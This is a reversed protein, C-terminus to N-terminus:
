DICLPAGDTPEDPSLVAPEDSLPGFSAEKGEARTGSHVEGNECRQGRLQGEGLKAFDRMGYTGTRSYSGSAIEKVVTPTLPIRCSNVSSLHSKPKLAHLSTRAVEDVM